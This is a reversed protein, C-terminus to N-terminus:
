NLRKFGSHCIPGELFQEIDREEKIIKRIKKFVQELEMFYKDLVEATHSISVYMLNSALYGKKLMEQTLFTKFALSNEYNFSFSCLPDIGSIEIEIDNSLAIEKWTKKVLRGTESIIEWSKIREMIEITKLAAAPGIRETWFTSSIFTSQASDMISKKGIVATISHGNGIAKGFMAMDPVVDFVKHLGGNTQRFGSTCEDFILIINKKDCLSRVKQLFNDQPGFNRSVEMKIIGIQHDNVLKELKEYNNYEFPFITGELNEPVGKADLGPLLHDELGDRNKLNAALYWDHWGHYGCVAIKSNGCAARAIRVAIANAEGGSRAFRVMESWPHLEVLKEALKVEEPCNLSTMNGKKVIDVVCSEIEPHAYGLIGQGVAFIMDILKENELTWINCGKAHSYYSPWYDPLWLESRKSLLMNGGPIIKKARKWLKQGEGMLAGENRKINKNGLFIEPEDKKLKMIDTWKFNFKPSFKELISKIVKYDDHEDLTWREASLDEHCLVNSRIFESNNRIFPTVHEKDYNSLNSNFSRVLANFSFIEVDLGDPWTPPQTNSCYDVKNTLFKSIVRDVIEHDILPCDGTIRVINQYDYKKAALYFREIVNKESGRFVEYDLSEVHNVLIDDATDVSTLLVIKNILKSKSLNKLLISILTEEKVKMMVKGPFRISGMRAQVFAINLKEM